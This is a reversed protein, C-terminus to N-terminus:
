IFVSLLVFTELIICKLFTYEHKKSYKQFTVFSESNKSFKKSIFQFLFQIIIKFKRNFLIFIILDFIIGKVKRAPSFVKRLQSVAPIHSSDIGSSRRNENKNPSKWNTFNKGKKQQIKSLTKRSSIDGIKVTLKPSSNKTKQQNPFRRRRIGSTSPMNTNNRSSDNNFGFNTQVPLHGNNELSRSRRKRYKKTREQTKNETFRPIKQLLKKNESRLDIRKIMKSVESTTSEETLINSMSLSRRLNRRSKKEEDIAKQELHLFSDDSGTTSNINNPKNKDEHRKFRPTAIYKKKQPKNISEKFGSFQCVEPSFCVKNKKPSATVTERRGTRQFNVNEKNSEVNSFLSTPFYQKKRWSGQPIKNQNFTNKPSKTIMNTLSTHWDPSSENEIKKEPRYISRLQRIISDLELGTNNSDIESLKSIEAYSLLSDTESLHESGYNYDTQLTYLLVQALQDVTMEKSSKELIQSLTVITENFKATQPLDPMPGKRLNDILPMLQLGSIRKSNANSLFNSEELITTLHKLYPPLGPYKSSFNSAANSGLGSDSNEIPQSDASKDIEKFISNNNESRTNPSYSLRLSKYNTSYTSFMNKTQSEPSSECDIFEDETSLRKDLLHDASLHINTLTASPSYFSTDSDLAGDM